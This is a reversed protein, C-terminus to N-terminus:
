KVIVARDRAEIHWFDKEKEPNAARFLTNLFSIIMTRVLPQNRHVIGGWEVYTHIINNFLETSMVKTDKGDTAFMINSESIWLHGTYFPERNKWYENAKQPQKIFEKIILNIAKVTSFIQNMTKYNPHKTDDSMKIESDFDKKNSNEGDRLFSFAIPYLYSKGNMIFSLNGNTLNLKAQHDFSDISLEKSTPLYNLQLGILNGDVDTINRLRDHNIGYTKYWDSEVVKKARITNHSDDWINGLWNAYDDQKEKRTQQFDGLAQRTFRQIKGDVDALDKQNDKFQISKQAVLKLYLQLLKALDSGSEITFYKWNVHSTIKNWSTKTLDFWM